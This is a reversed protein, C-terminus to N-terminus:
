PPLVRQGLFDSFHGLSNLATVEGTVNGGNLQPLLTLSLSGLEYYAPVPNLTNFVGGKFNGSIGAKADFDSVGSGIQNGIGNSFSAVESQNSFKNYRVATGTDNVGRAM